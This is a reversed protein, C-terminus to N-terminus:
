LWRFRAWLPRSGAGALPAPSASGQGAVLGCGETMVRVARSSRGPFQVPQGVERALPARHVNRSPSRYVFRLLKHLGAPASGAADKGLLPMGSHSPNALRM